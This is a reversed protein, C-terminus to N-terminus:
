GGAVLSVTAGSVPWAASDLEVQGGTVTYPQNNIIVTCPDPLGSLQQGHRQLVM